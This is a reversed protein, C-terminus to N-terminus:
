VRDVCCRIGVEIRQWSLRGLHGEATYVLAACALDHADFLRVAWCTRVQAHRIRHRWVRRVNPWGVCLVAPQNWLGM